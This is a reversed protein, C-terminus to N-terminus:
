KGNLVPYGMQAYVLIGEDIIATNKFGYRKLTNVVKQSAAHPCACYVVIWTDDKPLDNVFKEPDEYYPVPVAGPIHMQRWAVKSRADLVVMKSKNELAELVQKAPVYLNERLTFKPNEGKKNLVYEEPTPLKIESAKPANWGSARSRLFATVGNIEEESLINKYAIMPTGDRGNEIAYKLFGDTATALLMANGLAPASVGEGNAGHCVACNNNYVKKGLEISGVVPERSIKVGKKVDAEEYLWQLLQEIEIYELPGGQDDLYGGMATNARGFQITYRMFNNSKSSALLSHSKLSPANDAAYGERNEAHCLACYKQYNKAANNAAVSDLKGGVSSQKALLAQSEPEQVFQLEVGKAIKNSITILQKTKDYQIANLDLNKKFYQYTSDINEVDFLIAYVGQKRNQLFESVKVNKDASHLEVKQHRRILFSAENETSSVNELGMKEFSEAAKNLDKVAVKVSKIGVVGNKHKSYSRNYVYYTNWWNNTKNYDSTLQQLFVPLYEKKTGNFALKSEQNGGDDRSWGKAPTKSTRYSLVGDMEFGQKQLWDKTNNTSSTAITYSVVGEQKKSFSVWNKPTKTSISDPNVQMFEISSMDAFKANATTVGDFNSQGFSNAEPLRFGLTDAYFDRTKKLNNVAFFLKNVGTGQGMLNKNLAIYDVEKKVCSTAIAFVLCSAVFLPIRKILKATEM